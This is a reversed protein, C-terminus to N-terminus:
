PTALRCAPTMDIEAATVGLAEMLRWANQKTGQQHPLFAAHLRPYQGQPSGLADFTHAAVVLAQTSRWRRWPRSRGGSM